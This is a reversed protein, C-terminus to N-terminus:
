YLLFLQLGTIDVPHNRSKMEQGGGTQRVTKTKIPSANLKGTSYIISLLLIGTLLMSGAIMWKLSKM